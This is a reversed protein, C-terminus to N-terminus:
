FLSEAWSVAWRKKQLDYVRHTDFSIDFWCSRDLQQPILAARSKLPSFTGGQKGSVIAIQCNVANYWGHQCRVELEMFTVRSFYWLASPGRLEFMLFLTILLDTSRAKAPNVAKNQIFSRSEIMIWYYWTLFKFRQKIQTIIFLISFLFNRFVDFGM